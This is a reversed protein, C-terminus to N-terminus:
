CFDAARGATNPFGRLHIDPKVLVLTAPFPSFGFESRRLVAACRDIGIRSRLLRNNDDFRRSQFVRLVHLDLSMRVPDHHPAIRFHSPLSKCDIVMRDGNPHGVARDDLDPMISRSTAGQDQGNM